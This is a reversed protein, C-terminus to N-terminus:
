WDMNAHMDAIYSNKEILEEFSQNSKMAEEYEHISNQDFAVDLGSKAYRYGFRGSDTEFFKDSYDLVSCIKLFETAGIKIASHTGKDVTSGLQSSTAGIVPLHFFLSKGYKLFNGHAVPNRYRERLDLLWDFCIKARPNSNLDFLVKFKNSWRDGMLHVLDHRSKEFGCFPIMLIM